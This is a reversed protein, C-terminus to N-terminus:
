GDVVNEGGLVRANRSLTATASPVTVGNSVVERIWEDSQRLAFELAAIRQDKEDAPLQPNQETM